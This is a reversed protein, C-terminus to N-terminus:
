AAPSKAPLRLRYCVGLDLGARHVTLEAGMETASTSALHLGIRGDAHGM